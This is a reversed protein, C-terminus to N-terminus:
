YNTNPLIQAGGQFISLIQDGGRIFPSIQTSGEFAKMEWLIINDPRDRICVKCIYKLLKYIFQLINMANRRM